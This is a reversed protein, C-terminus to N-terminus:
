TWHQRSMRKLFSILNQQETSFHMEWKKQLDLNELFSLGDMMVEILSYVKIFNSITLRKYLSSIGKIILFNRKLFSKEITMNWAINQSM